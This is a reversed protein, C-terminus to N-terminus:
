HSANSYLYSVNKGRRAPASRPPPHLPHAGGGGQSSRPNELVVPIRGGLFSHPKNTNFYFLLRTCGRRRPDAGTTLYSSVRHTRLLLNYMNHNLKIRTKFKM